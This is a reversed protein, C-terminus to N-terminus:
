SARGLCKAKGMGPPLLPGQWKIGGIGIGYGVMCLVPPTPTEAQLLALTNVSPLIM